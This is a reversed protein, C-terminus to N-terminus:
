MVSVSLTSWAAILPLLWALVIPHRRIAILGAILSVLSSIPIALVCLCGLIGWGADKFDFMIWTSVIGCTLTLLILGTAVIAVLFSILSVKASHLIQQTVLSIAYTAARQPALLDRM